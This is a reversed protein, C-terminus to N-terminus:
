STARAYDARTERFTVIRTIVPTFGQNSAIKRSLLILVLLGIGLGALGSLVSMAAVDGTQLSAVRGGHEYAM